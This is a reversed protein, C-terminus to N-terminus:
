KFSHYRGALPIAEATEVGGQWYFNRPTFWTEFYLTVTPGGEPRAIRRKAVAPAPVDFSVPSSVLAGPPPPLGITPGTPPSQVAIAVTVTGTADVPLPLMFLGWVCKFGQPVAPPCAISGLVLSEAGWQGGNVYPYVFLRTTNYNDADDLAALWGLQVTSGAPIPSAPSGPTNVAIDYVDARAFVALAAALLLLKM